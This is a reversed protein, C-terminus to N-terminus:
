SHGGAGAEAESETETGEAPEASPPPPPALTYATATFTAEVTENPRAEDEVIILNLSAVNVIRDLNAVESLFAGVQHYGGSVRVQVPAEVYVEGPITGEPKFLLFEVGAQQGVL